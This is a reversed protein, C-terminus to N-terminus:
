SQYSNKRLKMEQLLSFIGLLFGFLFLLVIVPLFVPAAGAAVGYLYPVMFNTLNFLIHTLINNWISGGVHHVAGLLLGFLFAYIGQIVDGHYVGFLAAQLVNALWFPFVLYLRDFIAGRFILEEAAPGLLVTYLYMRWTGTNFNGMREMYDQFFVPFLNRLVTLLVIILFCGFFGVSFIQFLHKKCFVDSYDHEQRWDSKRYLWGCWIMYIVSALLSYSELLLHRYDNDSLKAVIELDNYGSIRLLGSAAIATFFYALIQVVFVGLFILIAGVVARRRVVKFHEMEREMSEKM